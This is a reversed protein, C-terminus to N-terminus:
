QFVRIYDIMFPQEWQPLWDERRHWFERKKDQSDHGWPAPPDCHDYFPWTGSSFSIIFHFEQDWPAMPGGEQYINEGQFGAMDWLGGPQGPATLRYTEVGDFLFAIYTEKWDLEWIHWEDAFNHSSNVVLSSNQWKQDRSPGFHLNTQTALLLV